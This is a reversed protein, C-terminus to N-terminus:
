QQPVLVLHIQEREVETVDDTNLQPATQTHSPVLFCTNAHEWHLRLLTSHPVPNACRLKWWQFWYSWSTFSIKKTTTKRQLGQLNRLISLYKDRNSDWWWSAAVKLSQYAEQHSVTLTTQEERYIHLILQSTRSASESVTVNTFEEWQNLDKTCCGSGVAETRDSTYM